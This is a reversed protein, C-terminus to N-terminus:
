NVVRLVEEITTIGELAKMFGDQLMTIMGEEIAVRQIEEASKEQMIMKSIVPTILMAEFIGTRGKFGTYNCEPDGEGKYLNVADDDIADTPGPDNNSYAFLDFGKLGDLEKHIRKLVELPAKYSKKCKKHITRVLRQAVVLNITSSLLFPEIGMDILRPLAGAANNTHLTALVLHGTLAAQIALEATESDRIEGVMIIDPDQRLFSRLAKAFTLGVDNNVQVQTVGDIRIEVPDEITMINVEPKNLIKLSSALTQTKGSGTPGTILIIGQTKKLNELYIKYAPGRLGTDKLDMTGGGKELLRLVVKEGYVTPMISVRIDILKNGNKVQFRGDQPVRKEDIKLNSLIKIRSVISSALKKPLTLKESLVGYIRFRVSVKKERPEIHIDSAKYRLAYELIMNVIQSVPASEVNTSIDEVKTLTSLEVVDEGIDQLAEDVQSGIPAGYERDIVDLIASEAAFYTKVKKGILTELYRVKQLDLPEVMALKVVGNDTTAFVLARNKRAENQPILNLVDRDITLRKVDVFDIGYMESKVRAIDEDSVIKHELLYKELNINRTAVLLKIKKAEEKSILNKVVLANLLSKLGYVSKLINGSALSSNPKNKTPQSKKKLDITQVKQLDSPLSDVNQYKNSELAKTQNALNQLNDDIAQNVSRGPLDNNKSSDSDNM